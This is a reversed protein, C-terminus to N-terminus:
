RIAPHRVGSAPRRAGLLIIGHDVKGGLGGVDGFCGRGLAESPLDRDDRAPRAPDPAPDRGLQGPVPRGHDDIVGLGGIGGGIHDGLDLPHTPLRQRDLGVDPHPGLGLRQDRRRHLGKAPDIHQHVVGPDAREAREPLDGVLVPVPRM